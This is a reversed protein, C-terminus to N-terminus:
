RNPLSELFHEREEATPLPCQQLRGWIRYRWRAVLRYGLDRVSRPIWSFIRAVVPWPRPLESLLAVAAASRVLVREDQGGVNCVVLMTNPGSELDTSVFGHRALLDAV